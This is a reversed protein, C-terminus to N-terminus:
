NEALGFRLLDEITGRANKSESIAVLTRSLMGERNYDDDMHTQAMRAAGALVPTGDDVLDVWDESLWAASNSREVEGMQAFLEHAENFAGSRAKAQARLAIAEPTQIGFILAEAEFPRELALAIKARVLRTEDDNQADAQRALVHEAKASFGLDALRNALKVITQGETLRDLSSNPRFTHELFEVDSANRTLLDWLTATMDDTITTNRSNRAREFADFAEKFQGSKALALIHTRKLEAGIPDDRMQLAYAEVLTAVDQEILGDEELHLDVFKILAEASQEVNSSVVKELRSQADKTKGEAMELDAKALDAGPPLSQGTRELSRLAAAASDPEGYELLRRSLEPAIFSRLHMPLATTARLAANINITTQPTISKRSLIAWLAVDTDCEMFNQLYSPQRSHGFEMIEAMEMLAPNNSVLEPDLALVDRAEAGFGFHLYTRALKIAVDADLRDFESYLENRLEAIQLSFDQDTAWDTIATVSPSICRIGLTTSAIPAEPGLAIDSSSIIRLNGAPGLAPPTDQLIMAASSDFIQTDVQPKDHVIPLDIRRTKPTLIGRSAAAGVQRAITNQADTLGVATSEANTPASETTASSIEQGTTGLNFSMPDNSAFGRSAVRRSFQFRPALTPLPDKSNDRLDTRQDTETRPAVDLVIMEAGQQFASVACDCSFFIGLVAPSSELRSVHTNDIREFVRDVNFGDQHGEVTVRASRAASDLSWKQGPSIDLVLRSFGDHAGSRVVIPKAEALNAAFCVLASIAYFLLRRM